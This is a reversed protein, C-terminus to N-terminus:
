YILWRNTVAHQLRSLYFRVNTESASRIIGVRTDVSLALFLNEFLIGARLDVSLALFLNRTKDMSGLTPTEREANSVSTQNNKM